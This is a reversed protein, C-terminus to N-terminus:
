TVCFAIPINSLAYSAKFFPLYTLVVLFELRVLPIFSTLFNSLSEPLCFNIDTATPPPRAPATTYSSSFIPVKPSKNKSSPSNVAKSLFFFAVDLSSAVRINYLLNFNAPSIPKGIMGATQPKPLTPLLITLPVM